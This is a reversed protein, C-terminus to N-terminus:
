LRSSKVLRIGGYGILLCGVALNLIQILLVPISGKILSFIITSLGMFLLTAFGTGLGFIILEKKQYNYELAKATFLSTFFVITMPSSITLLFVSVFSSILTMSAISTTSSAGGTIDKIIILGFVVLVISSAIGFIKKVKKNELLKGVGLIALTIYFYDVITVALVGALGNFITGQLTLNTIFFFVPGVALQLVLGTALGNRFM